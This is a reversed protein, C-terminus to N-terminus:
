SLVSALSCTAVHIWYGHRFSFLWALGPGYDVESGRRGDEPQRRGYRDCAGRVHQRKLMALEVEVAEVQGVGLTKPITVPCIGM